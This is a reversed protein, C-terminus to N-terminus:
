SLFVRMDSRESAAVQRAYVQAGLGIHWRHVEAIHHLCWGLLDQASKPEPMQSEDAVDHAGMFERAAEFSAALDIELGARSLQVMVSGGSPLTANVFELRQRLIALQEPDLVRRDSHKGDKGNVPFLTSANVFYVARNCDRLMHLSRGAIDAAAASTCLAPDMMQDLHDGGFEILQVAFYCTGPPAELVLAPDLRRSGAILTIPSSRYRHVATCSMNCWMYFRTRHIKQAWSMTTPM